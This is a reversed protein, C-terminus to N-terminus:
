LVCSGVRPVEVLGSRLDDQICYVVAEWTALAFIRGRESQGKKAVRGHGTEAWVAGVGSCCCRAKVELSSTLAPWCNKPVM